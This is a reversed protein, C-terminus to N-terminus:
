KSNKKKSIFYFDMQESNGKLFNRLKIKTEWPIPRILLKFMRLFFTKANKNQYGSDKWPTQRLYNWYRHALPHVKDYLWPKVTYHIIKPNKIIENLREKGLKKKLDSSHYFFLHIVNWEYPLEKWQNQLIGNLGDQEQVRIKEHNESIFKLFKKLVGKKRWIECDVLMVGTNFYEKDEPIGLNKKNTKQLFVYGDPVTGLVKGELPIEFLEKIDGEVILDSDLILMKNIKKLRTPFLIKCYVLPPLHSGMKLGEFLAWEKKTPKLFIVKSRFSKCVEEVKKKNSKDIGGDFIYFNVSEPCSCNKLISFMQAGLHKIYNNDSIVGIPIISKKM